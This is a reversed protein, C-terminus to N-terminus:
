RSGPSWAAPSVAAPHTTARRVAPLALGPDDGPLALRTVVEFISRARGRCRAGRRGAAVHGAGRVDSRGPRASRGRPRLGTRLAPLDPQGGRHRRGGAGLDRRHHGLRPHRGPHRQRHEQRLRVHLRGRLLGGIGADAVRAGAAVLPSWRGVTVGVMLAIVIGGGAPPRLPRDTFYKPLRRLVLVFVVLTVTEVLVQTLALDPAGHLLFLLATGYGTVGGADGGTLRGRSTAALVAAAIMISASWWRRWTTGLADGLRPWHVTLLLAGGPLVVLVLLISRRSLDAAIWAPHARHGRRRLPRARAHHGPLGGGGGVSPPLHGAGPRDCGAGSCCRVSPATALVVPGAARHPRAM